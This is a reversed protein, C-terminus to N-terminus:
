VRKQNASSEGMESKGSKLSVMGFRTRSDRYMMHVWNGIQKIQTSHQKKLPTKTLKYTKMAGETGHGKGAAM